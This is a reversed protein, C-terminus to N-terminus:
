DMIPSLRVQVRVQRSIGRLGTSPERAVGELEVAVHNYGLVSVVGPVHRHRLVTPDM